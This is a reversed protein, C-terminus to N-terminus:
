QNKVKLVQKFLLRLTYTHKLAQKEVSIRLDIMLERLVVICNTV